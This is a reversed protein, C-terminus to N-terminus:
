GNSVQRALLGVAAGADNNTCACAGHTTSVQLTPALSRRTRLGGDHHLRQQLTVQGAPVPLCSKLSLHTLPLTGV